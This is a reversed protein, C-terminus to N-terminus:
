PIIKSCKPYAYAAIVDAIGTPDVLGAIQASVRVIDEPTLEEPKAELAGRLSKGAELAPYKGQANAILDQVKKSAETLKKM